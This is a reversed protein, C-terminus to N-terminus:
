AKGYTNRVRKSRFLYTLWIAYYACSAAVVIETDGPMRNNPFLSTSYVFADTAASAVISIRALTPAAARGGLLALGAAIGFAAVLLRVLLAFALPTGRVPLADLANSAIFGLSVPQGVLLLLCLVFLWGGVGAPHSNSPVARDRGPRATRGEVHAM